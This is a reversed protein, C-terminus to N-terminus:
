SVTGPTITDTILARFHASGNALDWQWRHIASLLFHLLDRMFIVRVLKIKDDTQLLWNESIYTNCIGERAVRM